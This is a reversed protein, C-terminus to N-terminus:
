KRIQLLIIVSTFTLDEFTNAFVRKNKSVSRSLAIEVFNKVWLTDASDLLLKKWYNTERWKQRGDQIEAYFAFFHKDRFRISISHNRRFKQGVPYRCLRSTVKGLFRKGGSKAAMKFKQMFHLFANIKSVSRSLTIKVFYKVWLTDASDVPSKEWFDNEQWKQRGDQIEAYFASFTNIESVSHSLTIEIFNKIQLTDPSDVPLKGWFDNEWSHPIKAYFPFFFYYENPGM